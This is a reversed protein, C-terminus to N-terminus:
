ATVIVEIPFEVTVTYFAEGNDTQGTEFEITPDLYRWNSRYVTSVTTLVALLLNSKTVKAEELTGTTPWAFQGTIRYTHIAQSEGFGAGGKHRATPVNNLQIFARPLLSADGPIEPPDYEIRTITWATKTDDRLLPRLTADALQM